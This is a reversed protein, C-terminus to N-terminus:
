INLMRFIAVAGAVSVNLSEKEGKMPIEAVIDCKNLIAKSIGKVENGLIFAVNKGIKIKKYDKSNEAQEIAIIRFKEEKLEILVKNINKVKEWKVIKESGLAVKAIEKVEREFRDVPAPTYGTM